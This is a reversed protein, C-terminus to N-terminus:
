EWAYKTREKSSSKELESQYQERRQEGPDREELLFDDASQSQIIRGQRISSTVPVSSTQSIYSRSEGEESQQLSAYDSRATGYFERTDTIVPSSSSFDEDSFEQVDQSADLIPTVTGSSSTVFEQFNELSSDQIEEELDSESRSDIIKARPEIDRIKKIKGKKKM